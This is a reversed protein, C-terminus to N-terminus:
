QTVTNSRSSDPTIATVNCTTSISFANHVVLHFLECYLTLLTVRKVVLLASVARRLHNKLNLTERTAVEKESPGGGESGPESDPAPTEMDGDEACFRSECDTQNFNPSGTREGQSRKKM